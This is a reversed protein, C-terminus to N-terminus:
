PAASKWRKSRRLRALHLGPVFLRLFGCDACVVARFKAGISGIEPLLNMSMGQAPVSAARLDTSGCEPCPKEESSM